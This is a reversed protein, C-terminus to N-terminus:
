RQRMAFSRLLLATGWGFAGNILAARLLTRTNGNALLPLGKLAAVV